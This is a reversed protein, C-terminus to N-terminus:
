NRLRFDDEKLAAQSHITPQWSWSGQLDAWWDRQQYRV